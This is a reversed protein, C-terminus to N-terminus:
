TMAAAWAIHREFGLWTAMARYKEVLDRYAVEEGRVQALVARLRLPTIDRMVWGDDASTAALRQMAAETEAVDVATGRALLTEVGSGLRM